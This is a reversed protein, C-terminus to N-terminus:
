SDDGGKKERNVEEIVKGSLHAPVEEYHDFALDFAGRGGTMSRFSALYKLTEAMPVQATVVQNNGRADVGLVKGRRSNLDSIISGVYDDPVTVDMKMIPELLVPDSIQFGKKLAMSAAIKFAMESSDVDHYSGDYLTAKIDVVPYGALPGKRIAEVLGKEVAPIYQRPVAGGVIKQDFEFGAGKPLPEFRIWVDGYQGRGGSQKKYKGQVEVPKRISEKYPIKPAKLTVEVGFKRKLEALIVEMHVMGMASVILELTEEHREVKLTPEEECLRQLANSLKDEDGKSKPELAFSIVPDPFVIPSFRIPHREDCLTDGTITNKLKAVAAIEGVGVEQAAKQEKGTLRLLQGMREKEGRNSNLVTSDARLVGSYVRFLSLKGAFPDVITKCVQASFPAEPKPERAIQAESKPDVGEVPKVEAMAVPSPLFAVIGDLLQRVGVNATAAGCFVPVFKGALTGKAIASHLEKQSIEGGELYRELLEDDMEVATEVMKEKWYSIKEKLEEPVESSKRVEGSTGGANEQAEMTLLDFVGKFGAEKGIPLQLVLPTVGLTKEIDEVTRFFDARERDMKNVFILRPMGYEDAYAWVKETEVKVGSIASVLVVAGDLTKLVGKTDAIFNMYGPTDLIFLKAENWPAMAMSSSITCKREIEEPSFDLVSNGDDVRNLRTTVKADYLIAECLSTKGAGGHGVVALNRVSAPDKKAM